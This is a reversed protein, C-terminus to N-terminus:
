CSGAMRMWRTPCCRDAHPSRELLPLLANLMEFPAFAGVLYNEIVERGSIEGLRRTWSNTASMDLAEGTEDVLLEAAARWAADRTGLEFPAGRRGGLSPLAVAGDGLSLERAYYEPQRRVTSAANCVVIDLWEWRASVDDIFSHHQGVREILITADHQTPIPAPRPPPKPRPPTTTTTM